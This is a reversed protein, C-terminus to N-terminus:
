GGHKARYARVKTRNGCVAMDCWRGAHNRSRDYFAELCDPADCAKMRRWTGDLASRAVPALLSALAGDVGGARPVIRAGSEDFVVSLQGRQAVRELSALREDEGRTHAVLAARLEERLQGAHRVDEATAAASGAALLGHAVLWADLEQPTAIADVNLEISRTNVFDIVLALGHPPSDPSTISVM